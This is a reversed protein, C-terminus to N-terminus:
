KKSEITYIYLKRTRPGDFECFYIGEWTGLELAGNMVVLQESRGFLSRKMHADSNGEAHRFAPDNPVLKKLAYLLDVKVDPDYNENITIGATTHPVTLTIFANDIKQDRILKEIRPTIDIIQNHRDTKINITFKNM